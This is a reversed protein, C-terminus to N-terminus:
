MAAADVGNTQPQSSGGSMAELLAIRNNIKDFESSIGTVLGTIDKTIGSLVQDMMSRLKVVEMSLELTAKTIDIDQGPM